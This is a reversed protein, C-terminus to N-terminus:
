SLLALLTAFAPVGVGAAVLVAVVREHRRATRRRVVPRPLGDLLDQARAVHPAAVLLTAGGTVFGVEPSTGGGDDASVVADVDHEALFARALEAVPRNPFSGVRRRQVREGVPEEDHEM